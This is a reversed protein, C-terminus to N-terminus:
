SRKIEVIAHNFIHERWVFTKRTKIIRLAMLTETRESSLAAETKEYIEVLEELTLTSM